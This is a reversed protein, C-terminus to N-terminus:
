ITYLNNEKIEFCSPQSERSHMSLEDAIQDRSACKQLKLWKLSIYKTEDDDYNYSPLHVQRFRNGCISGNTTFLPLIAFFYRNNVFHEFM